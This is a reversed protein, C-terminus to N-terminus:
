DVDMDHDVRYLYEAISIVINQLHFRIFTILKNSKRLAQANRPSNNFGSPETAAELLM